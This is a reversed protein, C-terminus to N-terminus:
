IFNKIIADAQPHHADQHHILLDTEIVQLLHEFYRISIQSSM